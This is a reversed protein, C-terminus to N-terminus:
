AVRMIFHLSKYPPMNKGKASEGSSSISHRHNQSENGTSFSHTHAGASASSASHTHAGGSNVTVTHTHSHATRSAITAQTRESSNPKGDYTITRNTSTGQVTASSTSGSHTHAGGSEVTVDHIHAGASATNGSHTHNADQTGTRGGHNHEVLTADEYGGTSGRTYKDSAGIPFRGRMDPTGNEGDCIVWGDPVENAAGWWMIVGGVPVGNAMVFETNAIRKSKDLDPPTPVEPEGTFKPSELTALDFDEMIKEFSEKSLVSAVEDTISYGFFKLEDGCVSINSVSKPPCVFPDQAGVMTIEVDKDTKNYVMYRKDVGPITVTTTGAPIGKFVLSANRAQDAASNLVTLTVDGHSLDISELGAIAQELLVGLNRNTTSGWIGAQEGTGILELRLNKSYSSPM